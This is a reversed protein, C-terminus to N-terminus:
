IARSFAENILDNKALILLRRGDMVAKGIIRRRMLLKEPEIKDKM